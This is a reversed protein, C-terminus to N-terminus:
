GRAEQTVLYWVSDAADAPQASPVAGAKSGLPWTLLAPLLADGGPSAGIEVHSTECM